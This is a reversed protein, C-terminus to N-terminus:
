VQGRTRSTRDVITMNFDLVATLVAEVNAQDMPTSYGMICDTCGCGPPDIVFVNPEFDSEFRKSLDTM